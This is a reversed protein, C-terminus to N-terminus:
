CRLCNFIYYVNRVLIKYRVLFLKVQDLKLKKKIRNTKAYFSAKSMDEGVLNQEKLINKIRNSKVDNSVLEEFQKNAQDFNQYKRKGEEVSHDHDVQGSPIEVFFKNEVQCMKYKVECKGYGTKKKYRCVFFTAKPTTKQIVIEKNTVMKYFDSNKYDTESTYTEIVVYDVGKGRKKRADSNFGSSTAQVPNDNEKDATNDENNNAATVVILEPDSIFAQAM